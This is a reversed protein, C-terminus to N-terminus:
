KEKEIQRELNEQHIIENQIKKNNQQELMNLEKQKIQDMIKKKRENMLLENKLLANKIKEEKEQNKIIEM